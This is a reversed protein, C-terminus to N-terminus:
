IRIRKELRYVKNNNNNNNDDDDDDDVDYDNNRLGAYNWLFVPTKM